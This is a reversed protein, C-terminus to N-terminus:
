GEYGNPHARHWDWASHVITRLEPYRPQWGLERRIKDSGAVLAPLDGPRRPGDVAPIPTGTVSRATDIVERVTYGQGNGLNYIRSGGELARLALIHAQALDLVHIYDRVCTGDRTPYDNGYVEVHERRGLAVQLVLPILHTEPDHDEGLTGDMACGSANFYRPSAFAFSTKNAALWDILIQEVMLKSRGYPSVPAKKEDETIPVKDPDGYTACTSSFVFRQVGADAMCQLVNITTAVNNQYYLLPKDV